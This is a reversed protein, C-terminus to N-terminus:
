NASPSDARAIAARSPTARSVTARASRDSNGGLYELGGAPDANLM